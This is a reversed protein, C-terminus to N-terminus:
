TPEEAIGYIACEHGTRLAWASDGYSWHWWEGPYNSFGAASMVEILLQRNKAARPTILKSYTPFTEAQSAGERIVSTMDLDQGDSGVITVDVAGGTTHGPPHKSDPPAFFKNAERRLRSKPWEPHRRALQALYNEYLAKQHDLSRLSSIVKLRYGSPLRRQAAALMHAVSARVWTPRTRTAVEPVVVSVDVLPEGGDRIPVKDLGAVPEAPPKSLRTHPKQAVVILDESKSREYPEFPYGGYITIGTFGVAKLLSLVLNSTLPLQHTRFHQMEWGRRGFVLSVFNFDVEHDVFDLFRVFVYHNGDCEKCVIPMMRERKRLVRDYNHGHIVVIGGPILLRYFSRLSELMEQHTEVHVLSNGLCTVADFIGGIKDEDTFGARVFQIEREGANQKARRIMTSSKDSGEVYYGWDHFAIAHMGTGCAMDLVRKVQNKRFVSTFFPKERKLRTKWSILLDYTEAIEDYFSM